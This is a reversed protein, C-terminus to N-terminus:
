SGIGVSLLASRLSNALAQTSAPDTAAGALATSSRAAFASTDAYAASGLAGGNGINLFAGETGSFGLTNSVTLTKGDAGALAVSSAVTFTKGDGLTLTASGAPATITVRNVTSFRATNPTGAGIKGPHEWDTPPAVQVVAVELAAVQKRLEALRASLHLAQALERELEQVGRAMALAAASSGSALEVALEGLDNANAGGVRVMLAALARSFELSMYVNGAADVRGIAARQPFLTLPEGM